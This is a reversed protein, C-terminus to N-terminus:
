SFADTAELKDRGFAVALDLVACAREALRLGDTEARFLALTMDFDENAAATLFRAAWVSPQQVGPLSDPNDVGDVELYWGGPDQMGALAVAGTAWGLTAAYLGRDGYDLIKDFWDAALANEGAIRALLCGQAAELLQSPESM